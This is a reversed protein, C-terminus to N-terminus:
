AQRKVALHEEAVGPGLGVFPQDLQSAQPPMRGLLKLDNRHGAREVPPGEGRGGRGALLLDLLAKFRHGLSEVRRVEIIDVAHAGHDRVVGSGDQHFGYLALAAHHRGILLEELADTLQAILMIQEHQNVFYLTTHSPGAAPKAVLVVAHGRIRDRHGLGEAVAVRDTGNHGTGLQSIDKRSALMGGGKPTRGQGTRRRQGGEVHNLILIEDGTRRGNAGLELRSKFLQGSAVLMDGFYPAAAQHQAQHEVLFGGRHGINQLIHPQQGQRGRAVHHAEQRRQVDLVTLEILSDLHNIFGKLDPM